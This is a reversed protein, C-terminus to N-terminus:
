PYQNKEHNINFSILFILRTEDTSTPLKGNLQVLEQKNVFVNRNRIRKNGM